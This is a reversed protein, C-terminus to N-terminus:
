KQFTKQACQKSLRCSSRTGKVLEAWFHLSQHRRSTTCKLSLPVPCGAWLQHSPFHSSSFPPPSASRSLQPSCQRTKALLCDFPM